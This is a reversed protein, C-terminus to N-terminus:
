YKSKELEDVNVKKAHRLYYIIAKYTEHGISGTDRVSDSSIESHHRLARIIGIPVNHVVIKRKNSIFSEPHNRNTYKTSMDM